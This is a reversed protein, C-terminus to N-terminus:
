AAAGALASSPVGAIFAACREGIMITPAHTNGRTITPMVSADAIRLNDVGHVRLQPDCAGTQPDGIRATCAPHYTHEVTGRVYDGLAADDAVWRGPNIEAGCIERLAPMAAVERVKHIGRVIATVEDPHSLMNLRVRAKQTPDPSGILVTGRSRPAIYSLGISFAPRPHTGKGHEWFYLPAIVMEMDPAPMSPDTRFFALAEGVNSTLKGQRRLLWQAVHRPHELGALGTAGGRLEFNVFQFPHEMLHRGVAPLDVLPEVGVSRLHEPDGIGSRQLIEPTGFAGACLVVEAGSVRAVQSRRGRSYEVGTVRSGDLVLRHVLAGSVVDLNQRSRAPGLFASATDHRMGKRQNVQTFTVGDQRDGNIDERREFGAEVCADVVRRTVPDPTRFTEVHMPGGKAHHRDSLDANDESRRFHPLVDEAGWGEAGQEVWEEYDVRNGRVYMMANMSSCGGLMKGRPEFLQRGHLNEEPETVYNWDLKSEFQSSFAAPARVSLRRNHGGAELLLVSRQEDESLRAAVVCGAAGGGIVVVGYHSRLESM